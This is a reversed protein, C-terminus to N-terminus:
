GGVQTHQGGFTSTSHGHDRDRPGAGRCCDVLEKEGGVLLRERLLGDPSDNVAVPTLRGALIEDYTAPRFVFDFHM